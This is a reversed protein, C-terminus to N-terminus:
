KRERMKAAADGMRTLCATMADDSGVKYATMIAEIATIERQELREVLAALEKAKKQPDSVEM